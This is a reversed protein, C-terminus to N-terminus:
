IVPYCTMGLFVAFSGPNQDSSVFFHLAHIEKLRLFATTQFLGQFLWLSAPSGKSGGHMGIADLPMEYWQSGDPGM